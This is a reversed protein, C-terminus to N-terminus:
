HRGKVTGFLLDLRQLIDAKNNAGISILNTAMADMKINIRQETEKLDMKSVKDLNLNAIQVQMDKIDDKQGQYVMFMISVVFTLLAIAGREFLNNIRTNADQTSM